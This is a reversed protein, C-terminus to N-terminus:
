IKCARLGKFMFSNMFAMTRLCPQGISRSGFMHVQLEDKLCFAMVHLVSTEDYPMSHSVHCRLNQFTDTKVHGHVGLKKRQLAFVTSSAGCITQVFCSHINAGSPKSRHIFPTGQCLSTQKWPGSNYFGSGRHM